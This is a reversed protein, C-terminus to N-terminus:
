KEKTQGKAKPKSAEAKENKVDEEVRDRYAKAKKPCDFWVGSAKLRDAEDHEVVRFHDLPHYICTLM